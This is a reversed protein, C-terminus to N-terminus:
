KEIVEYEDYDYHHPYDTNNRYKEVYKKALEETACVELIDEAAKQIIWVKM